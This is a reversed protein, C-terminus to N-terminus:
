SQSTSSPNVTHRGEWESSAMNAGEAQLPMTIRSVTAQRHDNLLFNKSCISKQQIVCSGLYRKMKESVQFFQGMLEFQSSKLM